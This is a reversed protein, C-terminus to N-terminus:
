GKKGGKKRSEAPTSPPSPSRRRKKGASNAKREKRDPTRSSQDSLGGNCRLPPSRPISSSLFLLLILPHFPRVCLSPSAAPSCRRPLSPPAPHRPPPPPPPSSWPEQLSDKSSIAEREGLGESRLKHVATFYKFTGYIRKLLCIM